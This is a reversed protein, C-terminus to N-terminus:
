TRRGDDFNIDESGNPALRQLDGQARAACFFVPLSRSCDAGWVKCDLNGPGGDARCYGRMVGWYVEARCVLLALGVAPIDARNQASCAAICFVLFYEKAQVARRAATCKDCSAGSFHCNALLTRDVHQLSGAASNRRGPPVDQADLRDTFIEDEDDGGARRPGVTYATRGRRRPVRLHRM